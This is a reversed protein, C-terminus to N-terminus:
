SRRTLKRRIRQVANDVGKVDKGVARAIEEYSLGDLYHDLVKRELTSLNQKMRELGEYREEQAIVVEEPSVPATLEPAAEGSELSLSANLPLHKDRNASRVASRLRNQICTHAFTGFSADRDERFERIADLLGLFGEQTLDESDGGVLFLPRACARVMYSYRLILTEEADRDGTAAMAQLTESPIMDESPRAEGPRIEGSKDEGPHPQCFQSM